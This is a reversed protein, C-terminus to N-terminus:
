KRTRKFIKCLRSNQSSSYEKCLINEDQKPIITHFKQTGTITKATIYRLNLKEKANVYDKEPSFKVDINPLSTPELAWDCLEKVTIIQKDIPRQLSARAAKRKVTGGVGDCPGKGHATAFFHWETELDFDEKHYYINVFNKYNKFQQPAGDSFYFVKAANPVLEKIFDIVIKLYVYVAVSDHNNNDSIIVLSRHTLENNKKFYIVTPFITAQDNNWHFGPVADQIIFAYNEAFDCVALVENDQLSEKTKKMFASQEKAIFDHPLLNKIHDCFIEVFEASSKIITELSCRPSSVWYKYTINELNNEDFITELVNQLVDIKPCNNCKSLYCDSSPNTCLIIDFCNTYHM